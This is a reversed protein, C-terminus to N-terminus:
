VYERIEIITGALVGCHASKIAMQKQLLHLVGALFRFPM